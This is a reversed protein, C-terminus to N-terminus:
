RASQFKVLPKDLKEGKAALEKQKKSGQKWRTQNRAEGGKECEGRGSSKADGKVTTLKILHDGYRTVDTRTKKKLRKRKGGKM